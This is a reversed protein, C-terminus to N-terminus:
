DSDKLHTAAIEIQFPPAKPATNPMKAAPMFM